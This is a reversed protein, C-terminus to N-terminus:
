AEASSQRALIGLDVAFARFRAAMADPVGAITFHGGEELREFGAETLRRAVEAAAHLASPSAAVLDALDLAHALPDAAAPM